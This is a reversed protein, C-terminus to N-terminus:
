KKLQPNNSSRFFIGMGLRDYELDGVQRFALQAM